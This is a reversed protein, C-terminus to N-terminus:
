WRYWYYVYTYSGYNYTYYPYYAYTHGYYNYGYYNPYNYGYSGYYYSSGYYPRPYRCWSTQAGEKDLEHAEKVALVQTDKLTAVVAEASKEGDVKDTATTSYVAVTKKSETEFKQVVQRPLNLKADQDLEHEQAFAGITTLSITVLAILLKKM